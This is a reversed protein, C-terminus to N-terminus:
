PAVPSAPFPKDGRIFFVIGDDRGRKISLLLKVLRLGRWLGASQGGGGGGGGGGRGGAGPLGWAPPILPYDPPM